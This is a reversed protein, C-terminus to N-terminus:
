NPITPLTRCITDEAKKRATFFFKKQYTVLIKKNEMKCIFFQKGWM